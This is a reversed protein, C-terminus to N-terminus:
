LIRVAGVAAKNKHLFNIKHSVISFFSNEQVPARFYSSRRGRMIFMGPEDAIRIVRIKIRNRGEAQAPLFDATNKATFVSIIKTRVPIDVPMTKGISPLLPFQRPLIAPYHFPAATFLGTGFVSGM